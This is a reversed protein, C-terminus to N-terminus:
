PPAETLWESLEPYTQAMSSFKRRARALRRKATALSVRCASAVESLEMGEIFRLSFPIREDVSLRSLVRYTARVAAGMEPTSVAADNQALEGDPPLASWRSRTRRRIEARACNVSIGALWARLASPEALREISDIAVVFVDQILDHLDADPGLVRILVRRVYSHHRDYLAVAGSRERHLIAAVIAADSEFRPLRVVAAGRSAVPPRGPQPKEVSKM